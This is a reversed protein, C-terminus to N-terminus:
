GLLNLMRGIPSQSLAPALNDALEKLEVMSKYIYDIKQSDTLEPERGFIIETQPSDASEM